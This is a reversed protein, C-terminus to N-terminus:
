HRGIMKMLEETDSYVEQDLEKSLRRLMEIKERRTSQVSVSREGFENNLTEILGDVFMDLQRKTEKVQARV